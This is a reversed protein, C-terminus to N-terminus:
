LRADSIVTVAAAAGASIVAYGDADVVSTTAGTSTITPAARMARRHPLWAASQTSVPAWIAYTDYYRKLYEAEESGPRWRTVPNRQGAPILRVCALDFAFTVNLPFVFRAALYSTNATSGITLGSMSPLNFFVAFPRWQATGAADLTAPMQVVGSAGVADIDVATTPSGGSGFNQRMRPTVAQGCRYFGQLCVKQGAFTRVDEMRNALAPTGATAATTHNWRLFYIPEGEVGLTANAVNQWVSQGLTFSQRNITAAGNTGLAECVWTVGIKGAATISTTDPFLDFRGNLLPNDALSQGILYNV